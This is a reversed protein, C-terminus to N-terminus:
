ARDWDPSPERQEMENGLADVFPSYILALWKCPSGPAANFHQHEVGGPLIPLLVLDGEEWDHRVGDVVTWGKGELVFIALSGQHRHRGSHTRVDHQFVYWGSVALEERLPHIYWKLRGQRGQEWPLEKGRVVRAGNRARDRAEKMRAYSWEYFSTQKAEAEGTRQAEKELM